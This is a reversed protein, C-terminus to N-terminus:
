TKTNYMIYILIGSIFILLGDKKPDLNQDDDEKILEKRVKRCVKMMQRKTEGGSIGFKYGYTLGLVTQYAEIAESSGKLDPYNKYSTIGIGIVM